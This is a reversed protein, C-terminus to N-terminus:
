FSSQADGNSAPKGMQTKLTFDKNGMTIFQQRNNHIENRILTYNLALGWEKNM